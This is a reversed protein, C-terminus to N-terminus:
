FGGMRCTSRFLEGESVLEAVEALEAVRLAVTLLERQRLRVLPHLLGLDNVALGDCCCVRCYLEFLELLYVDM